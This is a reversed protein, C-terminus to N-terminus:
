IKWVRSKYKQLTTTTEQVQLYKYSEHPGTSLQFKLKRKRWKTELWWRSCEWLSKHNFLGPDTELKESASQKRQKCVYLRGPWVKGELGNCVM